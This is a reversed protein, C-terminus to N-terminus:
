RFYRRATAYRLTGLTAEAVTPHMHPIAKWRVGFGTSRKNVKLFSM